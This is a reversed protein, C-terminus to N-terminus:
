MEESVKMVGMIVMGQLLDLVIALAAVVMWSAVGLGFVESVRTLLWILIFNVVFYVGIWAPTNMTKELLKAGWSIFPMLLVSIASLVFSSVIIAWMPTLSMTGLVVQDPFFMNAVYLMLGTAAGILIVNISQSLVAIEVASTSAKKTSSM